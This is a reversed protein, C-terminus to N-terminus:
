ILRSERPRRGCLKRAPRSRRAKWGPRSGGAPPSRTNDNIAETLTPGIWGRRGVVAHTCSVLSAQPAGQKDPNLNPKSNPKTKPDGYSSTTRGGYANYHKRAAGRVYLQETAAATSSRHRRRRTTGMVADFSMPRHQSSSSTTRAGYANYYGNRASGKGRHVYLETDDFHLPTSSDAFTTSSSTSEKANPNANPNALHTTV